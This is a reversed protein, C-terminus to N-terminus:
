IDKRGIKEVQTISVYGQCKNGESDRVLVRYGAANGLYPNKVGADGQLIAGCPVTGLVNSLDSSNYKASSRIRVFGLTNEKAKYLFIFKPPDEVPLGKSCNGNILCYNYNTKQKSVKTKDACSCLLVIVLLSMLNIIKM